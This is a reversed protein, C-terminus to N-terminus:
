ISWMAWFPWIRVLRKPSLDNGKFVNRVIPWNQVPVRLKLPIHWFHITNSRKRLFCWFEQYQKIKLVHTWFTTIQYISHVFDLSQGTGITAHHLLSLCFAGPPCQGTKAKDGLLIGIDTGWIYTFWNVNHTPHECTGHQRAQRKLVHSTKTEKRETSRNPRPSLGFACQWFLM